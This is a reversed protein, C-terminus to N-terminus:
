QVKGLKLIEKSNAKTSAKVEKLKSDEEVRWIVEESPDLMSKALNGSTFLMTQKRLGMLLLARMPPATLIGKSERVMPSTMPGTAKMNSNDMLQAIFAMDKSNAMSSPDGKTPAMLICMSEMM